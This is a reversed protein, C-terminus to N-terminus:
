PQIKAQVPVVGAALYLGVKPNKWGKGSIGCAKVLSGDLSLGSLWLDKYRSSFRAGEQDGWDGSALGVHFFNLHGCFKRLKGLKLLDVTQNWWMKLYCFLPLHFLYIWNSSLFYKSITDSFLKCLTTGLTGLDEAWFNQAFGVWVFSEIVLKLTSYQASFRILPAHAPPLHIPLAKCRHRCFPITVLPGVYATSFCLINIEQSYDEKFMM